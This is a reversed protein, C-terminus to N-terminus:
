LVSVKKPHVMNIFTHLKHVFGEEMDEKFFIFNSYQKISHSMMLTELAQRFYEQRNKKVWTRTGGEITKCKKIYEEDNYLHTMGDGENYNSYLFAVGCKDIPNEETEEMPRLPLCTGVEGQDMSLALGRHTRNPRRYKYPNGYRLVKYARDHASGAKRKRSVCNATLCILTKRDRFDIQRLPDDHEDREEEKKETKIVPAFKQFSNPAM